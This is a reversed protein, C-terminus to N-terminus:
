IEHWGAEHRARRILELQGELYPEIDDVTQLRLDDISTRRAEVVIGHALYNGGAWSNLEDEWV